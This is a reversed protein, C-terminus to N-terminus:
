TKQWGKYHVRLPESNVRQNEVLIQTNSFTPDYGM